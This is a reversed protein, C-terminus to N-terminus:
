ASLYKEFWEAALDAVGRRLRRRRGTRRRHRGRIIVNRRPPREVWERLAMPRMVTGM